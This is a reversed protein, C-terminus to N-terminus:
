KKFLIDLSLRVFILFPGFSYYKRKGVYRESTNKTHTHPGRM